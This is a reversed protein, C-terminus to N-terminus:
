LGACHIVVFDGDCNVDKENGVGINNSKINQRFYHLCLAM